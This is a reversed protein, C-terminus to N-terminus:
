HLRISERHSVGGSKNLKRLCIFLLTKKKFEIMRNLCIKTYVFYDKKLYRTVESYPRNHNELTKQKNFSLHESSSYEKSGDTRLKVSLVQWALCM